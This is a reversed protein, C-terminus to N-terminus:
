ATLVFVDLYGNEDSLPRIASASHFFRRDNLVVFEGQDFAHNVFAPAEFGPHVRIDGGEINHRNLVFIGLRDFGDQHVGEPAVETSQLDKALIRIQHVEIPTQDDLASMHKFHRFMELFADSQVIHTEVEPYIREINGQYRNISADQVFAKTPLQMLKGQKFLFHSYRRLRFAGDMYPNPPLTDFSPALVAVSEESLQGLELYFERNLDLAASGNLQTTM